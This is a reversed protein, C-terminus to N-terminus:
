PRWNRGRDSTSFTRGDSAVVTATKDDTASVSILDITVPFALRQWSRGEDTSILVIGAPGVLWCVWPSPSSGATLTVSVGTSQTQWTSGGDTSHQVVGDTGIRWRRIPNSSVIATERAADLRRAAARETAETKATVAEALSSQRLQEPPTAQRSGSGPSPVSPPPVAAQTAPSPLHADASQAQAAPLPGSATPAATVRVDGLASPPTAPPASKAVTTRDREEKAVRGPAAAQAAAAGPTTQSRAEASPAPPIADSKMSRTEERASQGAPEFSTRSSINVWVIVATAAVTLPALWAIAPRRWWARAVPPTTRALAALVAQCRACDVIHAEADSREHASLTGDMFAAAIAADLCPTSPAANAGAELTERLLRDISKTM